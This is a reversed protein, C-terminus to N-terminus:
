KMQEQNMEGNSTSEVLRQKENEHETDFTKQNSQRKVLVIM